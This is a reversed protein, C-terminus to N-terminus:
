DFFGFVGTVASKAMVNINLLMTLAMFAAPMDQMDPDQTDIAVCMAAALFAIVSGIITVIGLSFAKGIVLLVIAALIMVVVGNSYKTFDKSSYVAFVTVAAFVTIALAYGALMMPIGVGVVISTSLAGSVLATSYLMLFSVSEKWKDKGSCLYFLSPIFIFVLQTIYLWMASPKDIGTIVGTACAAACVTAAAVLHGLAGVVNKKRNEVQMHKEKTDNRVVVPKHEVFM